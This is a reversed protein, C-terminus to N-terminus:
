VDAIVMGITRDESSIPVTRATTRDPVLLLDSDEIHAFGKVSSGDHGIGHIFFDEIDAHKSLYRALFKGHV